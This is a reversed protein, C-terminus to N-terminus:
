TYIYESSFHFYRAFQGTVFNGNPKGERITPFWAICAIFTHRETGMTVPVSVNLPILDTDWIPEKYLLYDTM